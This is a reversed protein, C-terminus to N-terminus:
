FEFKQELTWGFEFTRWVGSVLWAVLDLPLLHALVLPLVDGTLCGLPSPSIQPRLLAICAQVDLYHELFKALEMNGAETALAIPSRKKADLMQPRAGAEILLRAIQVQQRLTGLHDAKMKRQLVADHTFSPIRFSSKRRPLTALCTLPTHGLKGCASADAGHELLSRVIDPGCDLCVASCLVPEFNCDYFFQAVSEPEDALCALVRGIKRSELCRLLPNSAIRPAPPPSCNVFSYKTRQNHPTMPDACCKAIPTTPQTNSPLKTEPTMPPATASRLCRAVPTTPAPAAWPARPTMAGSPLMLSLRDEKLSDQSPTLSFSEFEQTCGSHFM